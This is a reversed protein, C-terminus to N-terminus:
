KAARRTARAQRQRKGAARRKVQRAKRHAPELDNDLGAFIPSQMATGGLVRSNVTRTATLAIAMRGAPTLGADAYANLQPLTINSSQVPAPYSAHM